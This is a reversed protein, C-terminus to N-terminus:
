VRDAAAAGARLVAAVAISGFFPICAHQTVYPSRLRQRHQAAAKSILDRRSASNLRARSYLSDPALAMPRPKSFSSFGLYLRHHDILLVYVLVALNQPTPIM